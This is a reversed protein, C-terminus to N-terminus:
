LTIFKILILVSDGPCRSAKLNTDRFAKESIVESKMHAPLSASPPLATLTLFTFPSSAPTSCFRVCVRMDRMSFVCVCAFPLVIHVPRCALRRTCVWVRLNCLLNRCGSMVSSDIHNLPLSACILLSRLFPLSPLSPHLLLLLIYRSTTQLKSYM